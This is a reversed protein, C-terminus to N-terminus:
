SADTKARALASRVLCMHSCLIVYYLTSTSAEDGEGATEVGSGAGEAEDSEEGGAEDSEEGGGSAQGGAEDDYDAEDDACSAAAAAAENRLEVEATIRLLEEAFPQRLLEEGAATIRLAEALAAAPAAAAALAAAAPATAAPSQTLLLPQPPTALAAGQTLLSGDPSRSRSAAIPLASPSAGGGIGSLRNTLLEEMHGSAAKVIDAQSRAGDLVLAGHAKALQVPRYKVFSLWSHQEYWQRLAAESSKRKKARSDNHTM